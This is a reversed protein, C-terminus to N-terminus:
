SALKDCSYTVNEAKDELIKLFIFDPSKSVSDLM